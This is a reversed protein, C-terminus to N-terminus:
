SNKRKNLFRYLEPRMFKGQWIGLKQEKAEYEARDYIGGEDRYAVAWGARVMEENLNMSGSYCTSLSRGYRDKSDERCEINGQAILKEMYKKAKIGCSYKKHRQDYCSQVYEPSDIGLLRVRRSGIELSDGDIVKIRENANVTIISDKIGLYWVGVMLIAFILVRLMKWM